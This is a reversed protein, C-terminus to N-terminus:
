NHPLRGLYIPNLPDSINVFATGDQMGVLAYENGTEEDTWGWLDNVECMHVKGPTGCTETSGLEELSLVSLLDAEECDFGGAKGGICSIKQGKNLTQATVSQTSGSIGVFAFVFVVGISITRLFKSVLM